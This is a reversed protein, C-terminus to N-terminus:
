EAEDPDPAALPAVSQAWFHLRSSHAPRPWPCVQRPEPEPTLVVPRHECGALVHSDPARKTDKGPALRYTTRSASVLVIMLLATFIFTAPVRVSNLHSM